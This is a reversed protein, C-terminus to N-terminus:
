PDLCGIGVQTYPNHGAVAIGHGDPPVVENVDDPPVDIHVNKQEVILNVTQGLPLIGGGGGLPTHGFGRGFPGNLIGEFRSFQGHTCLSGKKRPRHVAIGFHHAFHEPCCGLVFSGAHHLDQKVAHDKGVLYM